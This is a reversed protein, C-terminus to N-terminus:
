NGTYFLPGDPGLPLGFYMWVFLLLSWVITFVISYPVMTSIITGVGSKEDYKHVFTIILPFYSMLPTIINTVSDGIRFAMQTLSPHYVMLMIMPV